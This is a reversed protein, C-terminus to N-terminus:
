EFAFIQWSYLKIHQLGKVVIASTVSCAEMNLLRHSFLYSSRLRFSFLGKCFPVINICGVEIRQYISSHVFVISTIINLTAHYTSLESVDLDPCM